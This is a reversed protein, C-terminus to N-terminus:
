YNLLIYIEGTKWVFAGVPEGSSLWKFEGEHGLDSAGLWYDHSAAAEDAEHGLSKVNVNIM